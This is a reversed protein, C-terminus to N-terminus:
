LHRTVQFLISTRYLQTKAFNCSPVTQHCMSYPLLHGESRYISYMPCGNQVKQIHSRLTPFTVHGAIRGCLPCYATINVIFFNISICKRSCWTVNSSLILFIFHKFTRTFNLINQSLILYVFYAPFM